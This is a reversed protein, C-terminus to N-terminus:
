WHTSLEGVKIKIEAAIGEVARKTSDADAKIGDIGAILTEVNSNISTDDGPLHPQFTQRPVPPQRDENSNIPLRGQSVTTNYAHGTPQQQASHFEVDPMESHARSISLKADRVLDNFWISEAAHIRRRLDDTTM